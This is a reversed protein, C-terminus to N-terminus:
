KYDLHFSDDGIKGFQASVIDKNESEIQMNKVSPMSVRGGFNLRYQGCDFSPDKTRLRLAYDMKDLTASAIAQGNENFPPLYVSFKRPPQGEKWQQTLSPLDYVFNALKEKDDACFLSYIVGGSTNKSKVDNRPHKMHVRQLKGIYHGSKKSLKHSYHGAIRTADYFYYTPNTFLRQKEAIIAIREQRGVQFSFTYRPNNRLLISSTSKNSSKKEVCNAGNVSKIGQGRHVICQIYGSACLQEKNPIVFISPSIKCLKNNFEICHKTNLPKNHTKRNSKSILPEFTHQAQVCGQKM